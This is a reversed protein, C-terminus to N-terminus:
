PATGLTASQCRSTAAYSAAYLLPFVFPPKVGKVIVPTLLGDLSALNAPATLMFSPLTAKAGFRASQMPMKSGFAAPPPLKVHSGTPVIAPTLATLWLFNWPAASARSPLTMRAGCWALQTPM